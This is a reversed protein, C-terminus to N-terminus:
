KILLGLKLAFTYSLGPSRGLRANAYNYATVDDYYGYPDVYSEKKNDIGYGLGWYFDLLFKNGFVWQKGAEVQIAGFTVNQKGVEYDNNNKWLV